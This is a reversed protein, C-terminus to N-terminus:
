AQMSGCTYEHKEGEYDEIIYSGDARQEIYNPTLPMKGYAGPLDLVYTPYALGTVKGRLAKVIDQGEKIPIRFHGTGPAMDPHHLYYPKVRNALLTRFLDELIAADDNVGKLLVSQSLLVAGSRSLTFFADRVAANIEQAHNVHLVVYLAKKLSLFLAALENNIRAPQVLPARTHIRIIDIHPISELAALVAGLRRNSLTLPDGGTLIVERINKDGRIYAFAGALEDETLVGEGQGVMEKRFCFRCYVACTDTVKLLVRDPYRHVIGKVPTHAHDGIPDANEDPTIIQERADPVYQKGVPDALPAPSLITARVQAPLNDQATKKLSAPPM